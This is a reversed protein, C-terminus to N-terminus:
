SLAKIRDSISPHSLYFFTYIKSTKIFAKNERALAILANKMDEKSTVKAGHQDAAFENKRSLANLMPSILFSFINALIFLLAFVGGNVGELHSELYVFEPLNAFVFFLLFMTIAGNFLAKIIDKHVFHGLEHGLVALLERENLAKLLTDFLVVRKSKFLGGFYANLRKDRKSADIVYVGNASFGCQKMLSSIKKLLNEDDLKKMKNFIPAILTPYILNIIVIICFAFIFAAIWWFTGFFDYCFLLTYLILFGFILTLILSKMTDKIFLKVTMNSFGHAKDKIFSEYISLPLNLISTIILFSLLFLTNEFRTNNLILLEKLYLFGFGIWAISIILNYFNSFLKFKENEIAIDAANQYDKESLIQAQKDKERELFRIQAYSIWSLLATYLCLIAILTM